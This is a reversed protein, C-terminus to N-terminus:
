KRRDSNKFHYKSIEDATTWSKGRQHNLNYATARRRGQDACRAKGITEQSFRGIQRAELGECHRITKDFTQIKKLNGSLIAEDSKLINGLPILWRMEIRVPTRAVCYDKSFECSTSLVIM